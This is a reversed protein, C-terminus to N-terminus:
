KYKELYWKVGKIIGTDFTENVKWGLENKRTGSWGVLIIGKM